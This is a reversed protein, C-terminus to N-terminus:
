QTDTLGTNSSSFISVLRNPNSSEQAESSPLKAKKTPLDSIEEEQSVEDSSGSGSAEEWGDDVEAEVNSDSDEQVQSEIGLGAVFTALDKRFSKDPPSMNSAVEDDEDSVADAVLDLDEETGGLALIEELLIAREDKGKSGQSKTPKNDESRTIPKAAVKAKGTADRKTGRVLESAKSAGNFDKNKPKEDVKEKKYSLNTKSPNAKEEFKSKSKSHGFEKEIKATLASLAREDFSTFEDSTSISTETLANSRAPKKNKRAM